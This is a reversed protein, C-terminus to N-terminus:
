PAPCVLFPIYQLCVLMGKEAGCAGEIIFASGPNWHRFHGTKRWGVPSVYM